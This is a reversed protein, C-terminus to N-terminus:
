FIPQAPLISIKTDQVLMLLYKLVVFTIILIIGLLQTIQKKQAFELEM